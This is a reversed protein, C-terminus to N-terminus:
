LSRLLSMQKKCRNQLRKRSVQTETGLEILVVDELNLASREATLNTAHKRNAGKSARPNCRILNTVRGERSEGDKKDSLERPKGQARKM